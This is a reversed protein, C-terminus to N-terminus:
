DFGEPEGAGREPASKSRFMGFFAESVFIKQSQITGDKGKPLSVEGSLPPPGGFATTPNGV